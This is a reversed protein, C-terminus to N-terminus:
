EFLGGGVFLVLSISSCVATILWYRMVVKYPPWGKMQFHNHVPSVLFIKKGGRLKKSLLQLVVSGIATWLPLTLVPLIALSNTLVSLIALMITLPMTGVDSLMFRAPPINFWLFAILGGVVAFCLAAIDNKSQLLAIVGMTSYMIAFVGGALGDIGDIVGGAYTVAVAAVVAISFLLWGLEIIGLFPIYMSTMDLRSTMWWACVVGILVTIGLRIKLSLGGGVATSLVGLRGCVMLDDIGGIFVGVGFAALPLWTQNRSLFNLGSFIDSSGFLMSLIWFLGVSVILGSVVVLAGMRYLVKNEDNHLKSTLTAPKGDVTKSVSKKKQLNYVIMVNTLWPTVLVGAAISVLAPAFLKIIDIRTLQVLVTLSDNMTNM